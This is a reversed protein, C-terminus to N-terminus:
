SQGLGYRWGFQRALSARPPQAIVIPRVPAAPPPSPGVRVEVVGIHISPPPPPATREHPPSPQFERPPDMAPRALTPAFARPPLPTVAPDASRAPALPSQSASPAPTLPDSASEVAETAVKQPRRRRTPTPADTAERAATDPARTPTAMAADARRAIRAAHALSTPADGTPRLASASEAEASGPGTPLSSIPALPDPTQVDAPRPDPRPPPRGPALRPPAADFGQFGVPASASPPQPSFRPPRLVLAANARPAAVRDFYGSRAPKM